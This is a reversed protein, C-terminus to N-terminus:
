MQEPSNLRSLVRLIFKNNFASKTNQRGGDQLLVVTICLMCLYLVGNIRFCFVIKKWGSFILHKPLVKMIQYIFQNIITNVSSVITM